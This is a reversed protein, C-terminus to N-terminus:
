VTEPVLANRMLGGGVQYEIIKFLQEFRSLEFYGPIKIWPAIYLRDDPNRSSFMM